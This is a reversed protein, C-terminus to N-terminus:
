YKKYNLTKYNWSKRNIHIKEKNFRVISEHNYRNTEYLSSINTCGSTNIVIYGTLLVITLKKLNMKKFKIM